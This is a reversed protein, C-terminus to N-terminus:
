LEQNRSTTRNHCMWRDNCRNHIIIYATSVSAIQQFTELGVGVTTTCVANIPFAFFYFADDQEVGYSCMVCSLFVFCLVLVFLMFVLAFWNISLHCPSFFIYPLMTDLIRFLLFLFRYAHDLM